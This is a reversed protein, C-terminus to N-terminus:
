EASKIIVTSQPPVSIKGDKLETHKSSSEPILDARLTANKIMDDTITLEKADNKSFNHIILLKSDEYEVYYAGVTKDDFGQTGVIRGRAIEPNQNKITIIRRYYNLLSDKDALQQKVGGGTPVDPEDGIGNVYIDPLNESDFVMQTRYAADNTTNPAKVGIEEGYYIFPNGPALMYVAAALKQSSLGQSELANGSRVQDHNSLFMANIANPNSETMKNDYNMIKKVTAMGGQSIINSIITGTSTSFKFAFQSDIGSKYLEQIDSDDTWNEGVMYVDEKIGKCTDYFWKLFETGDTEKNTFYKCADLRFGDVGRDLWFKAIKTFEERTKKSNLNWEPM